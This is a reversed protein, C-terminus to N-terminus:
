APSLRRAPSRAAWLLALGVVILWITAPYALLREMGGRGLALYVRNGYLLFGFFGIAGCLLSFSALPRWTRWLALGLALIGLGGGIWHLLAGAAHLPLNVDGPALGSLVEGLGGLSVLVLGLTTLRRRPWASRTLFAGLFILVGLLVFGANMVVHLPSCVYGLSEGTLPDVFTGCTTVGLASVDYESVSYGLWASQAILQAVFYEVTLVWCVAGVVLPTRGPAAGRAGVSAHRMSLRGNDSM